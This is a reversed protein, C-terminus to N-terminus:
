HKVHLFDVTYVQELCTSNFYLPISAVKLFYLEKFQVMLVYYQLSREITKIHRLISYGHVLVAWTIHNVPRCIVEWVKVSLKVLLTSLEGNSLFHLFEEPVSNCDRRM